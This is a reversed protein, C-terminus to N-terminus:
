EDGVNRGASGGWGARGGDLYPWMENQFTPPTVSKELSNLFIYENLSSRDRQSILEAVVSEPMNWCARLKLLGTFNHYSVLSREATAVDLLADLCVM